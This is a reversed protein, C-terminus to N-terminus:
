RPPVIIYEPRFPVNENSKSLMKVPIQAKVYVAVGGGVRDKRDQRILGYGPLDVLGDSVHGKLWTESVCIIDFESGNFENYFESFNGVLSQANVHAIRLGDSGRGHVDTNMIM